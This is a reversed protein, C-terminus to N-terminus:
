IGTFFIGPLVKANWIEIKVRFSQNRKIVSEVRVASVSDIFIKTILFSRFFIALGEFIPLPPTPTKDPTRPEIKPGVAVQAEQTPVM